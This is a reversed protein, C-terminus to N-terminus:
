SRVKGHTIEGNPFFTITPKGVRTAYDYTYWTGGEPQWENQKPVVILIEVADVINRDRRLYSYKPRIEDSEHFARLYDKEPPHCVVRYGLHKAIRAAQLDVGFCDGHHFEGSNDQLFFGVDQIQIHNMGDRTGTIGIIM